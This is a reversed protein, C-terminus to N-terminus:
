KYSPKGATTVSFLLCAVSKNFAESKVSMCVSCDAWREKQMVSGDRSSLGM